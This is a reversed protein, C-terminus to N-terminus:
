SKLLVERASRRGGIAATGALATKGISQCRTMRPGRSSLTRCDHRWMRFLDAGAVRANTTTGREMQPQCRVGIAAVEGIDGERARCEGLM